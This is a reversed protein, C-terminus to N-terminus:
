KGGGGGLLCDIHADPITNLDWSAVIGDAEGAERMRERLYSETVEAVGQVDNFEIGACVKTGLAKNKVHRKIAAIERRMLGDRGGVRELLANQRLAAGEEGGFALAYQSLEFPLGAPADTAGYFMPKVFDALPLLRHYDQGVFGALFPAFLDFGVSLGRHRFYACLTSVADCVADCKRDFLKQFEDDLRYRMDKYATIGLPNIADRPALARPQPLPYREKCRACYCGLVSSLGGLFSPYRIKDLFVGDYGGKAYHREYVEIVRQAASAPCAFRFREGNGREFRINIPRDDAGILPPFDAFAELESFCPLWLYIGVGSGRLLAKLESYDADPNWGVILRELRGSDLVRGLRRAIAKMDLKAPADCGGTFLQLSIQM